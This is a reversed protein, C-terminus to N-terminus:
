ECVANQIHDLALLRGNPALTLTIVDIRHQPPLDEHTQAYAQALAILRRQKAPTVSEAATGMAQGRRTRVELFVLVGDREAVIDLEGERTRFNRDRIRYGHAKLHQLALREGFDGLRRRSSPTM